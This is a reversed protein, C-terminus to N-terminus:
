VCSKECSGVSHLGISIVNHSQVDAETTLQERTSLWSLKKGLTQESAYKKKCLLLATQVRGTMIAAREQITLATSDLKHFFVRGALTLSNNKSGTFFWPPDGLYLVPKIFYCGHSLCRRCNRRDSNAHRPSLLESTLSFINASCITAM